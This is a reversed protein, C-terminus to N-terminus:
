CKPTTERVNQFFLVSFSKFRRKCSFSDTVLNVERQHSVVINSINGVINSINGIINSINGVINSIFIVLLTCYINEFFCLLYLSRNVRVSKKYVVSKKLEAETNSLKRMLQNTDM